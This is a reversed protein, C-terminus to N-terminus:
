RENGAGVLVVFVEDDKVFGPDVLEESRYLRLLEMGIVEIEEM